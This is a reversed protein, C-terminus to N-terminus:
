FAWSKANYFRFTLGRISGIINELLCGLFPLTSLSDGRRLSFKMMKGKRPRLTWVTLLVLMVLNSVVPNIHANTHKQALYKVFFLQLVDHKCIKFKWLLAYKCEFGMEDVPYESVDFLFCAEIPHNSFSIPIHPKVPWSLCLIVLFLHNLFIGLIFKALKMLKDLILVGLFFFFLILVGPSLYYSCM